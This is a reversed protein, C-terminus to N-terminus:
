KVGKGDELKVIGKRVIKAVDNNYFKVLGSEYKELKEFLRKGVTDTPPTTPTTYGNTIVEWIDFGMTYIYIHMRLIWYAHHTGDFLPARNSSFGEDSAM